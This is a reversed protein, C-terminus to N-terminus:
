LGHLFLRAHVYADTNGLCPNRRWRHPKIRLSTDDPLVASSRWYHYFDCHDLKRLCLNCVTALFYIKKKAELWFFDCPITIISTVVVPLFFLFRFNLLGINLPDFSQCCGATYICSFGLRGRPTNLWQHSWSMLNMM